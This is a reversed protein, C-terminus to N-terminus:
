NLLTIKAKKKLCHMKGILMGFAVGISGIDASEKLHPILQNDIKSYALDKNEYSFHIIHESYKNSTNSSDIIEQINKKFDEM